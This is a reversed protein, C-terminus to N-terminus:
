NVAPSNNCKGEELDTITPNYKNGTFVFSYETKKILLDKIACYNSLARNSTIKINGYDTLNNLYDLNTLKTGSILLQGNIKLLNDLGNLSNLKSLSSLTIAGIETVNNLGVMNEINNCRLVTLLGGIKELSELGQLNTLKVVDQDRSNGISSILLDNNITKLQSFWDLKGIVPLSHLLLDDLETFKSVTSIDSLKMCNSLELSGISQLNSLENLTTILTAMKFSLLGKVTKINDLGKISTLNPCQISISNLATLKEFGELTAITSYSGAIVRILGDNKELNSFGKVSTLKPCDILLDNTIETLSAFSINELNKCSPGNKLNDSYTEGILISSVKKVKDFTISKLSDSSIQIVQVTELNEFNINDNAFGSITLSHQIKEITNLPSLDTIIKDKNEAGEVGEITLGLVSKYKSNGAANVDAQTRLILIDDYHDSEIATYKYTRTTKGDPATVEFTTEQKWNTISEPTPHISSGDSLVVTAILGNFDFNHGTNFTISSNSVPLSYKIDDRSLTFELISGDNGIYNPHKCDQSCSTFGVISILWLLLLKQKM